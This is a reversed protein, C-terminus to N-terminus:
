PSHDPKKRPMIPDRFRVEIVPQHFYMSRYFPREFTKAYPFEDRVAQIHAIQDASLGPFKEYRNNYFSSMAFCNVGKLSALFPEMPKEIDCLVRDGRNNWDPMYLQTLYGIKLKEPGNVALWKQAERRTDKDITDSVAVSLALPPVLVATTLAALVVGRRARIHESLREIGLAALPILLAAAPLAYREVGTGRKLPTLEAVIYWLAACLAIMLADPDRRGNRVARWWGIVGAIPLLAGLGPLIATVFFYFGFDPWQFITLKAKDPAETGHTLEFQFGKWMADPNSLIQHSFLLFVVIAGEIIVAAALTRQKLNPLSAATVGIAFPIMIVGVFKASVSLGAGLVIGLFSWSAIRRAGGRWVMLMLVTLLAAFTLHIDEKTYRSHLVHIPVVALGLACFYAGWEGCIKWGIGACIPISLTAFIVVAMRAWRLRYTTKDMGFWESVKFSGAVTNVLFGPHLFYTVPEGSVIQLGVKVKEKEDPHYRAPLGFELHWLRLAMAGVAILFVIWTIRVKEPM